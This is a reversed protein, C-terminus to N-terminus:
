DPSVKMKVSGRLPAFSYEIWGDWHNIIIFGINEDKELM